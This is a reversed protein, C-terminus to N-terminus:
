KKLQKEMQDLKQYYQVGGDESIHDRSIEAQVKPDPTHEKEVKKGKDVQAQIEATPVKHKKAIDEVTMGEAKGGPIQEVVKEVASKWLFQVQEDSLKAFGAYYALKNM